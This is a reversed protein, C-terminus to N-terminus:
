VTMTQRSYLRHCTRCLVRGNEPMLRLRPFEAFPYIHHVELDGGRQGCDYCRYDEREFVGDRWHLYDAVTRLRKNENTVGGKWLHSRSGSHAERIRQRAESTHHYGKCGMRGRAEASARHGSHSSNGTAALSMKRRTEESHKRGTIWPINGTRYTM